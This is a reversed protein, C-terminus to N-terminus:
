RAGGESAASPSGPRARMRAAASATLLSATGPILVPPRLRVEVAGASVRVSIRDRAWGPLARRAADAPDADQLSAVAGAEAAHDALERALGASLVQGAALAVAVLLPLAGVLEITAQGAEARRSM